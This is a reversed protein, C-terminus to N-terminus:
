PIALPLTFSFTSGQGVESEVGVHGGLREVIRQVISLGLGHGEARIEELRTFPTFLQEQEEPTLGHGNDRVWFRATGRESMEGGLEVRPPQGGYKLANSLYNAWVEEVWPAHGIVSPWIKPVVIEAESRRIIHLLGDQADQVIRGMDLPRMEVEVSRLGSLLILEDIIRNMRRANRDIVGLSRQVQDPPLLPFDQSLVAAYGVILGLPSKLGHAVTHAFADLEEARTQLQDTYRQLAEDKVKQETVDLVQAVTSVGITSETILSATIEFIRRAGDKRVVILEYRSLVDEGQQRRRYRDLVISRSEDDLITTFERGILESVSYGLLRCLEENVYIFRRNQDVILIGAHSNEVVTRYLEESRRLAAEVELRESIEAELQGVTAVLDATRQTMVRELGDRTTQLTEVLRANEIAITAQAALATLIAVDEEVFAGQDRKNEVKLVGIKRHRFQLPVALVAYAKHQIIREVADYHRPDSQVDPAIVPKGSLFAEGAISADLPVPIDVLQDIYQNAVRFRLEQKQEDLLLIGAMETDTLEVAVEAIRHLLPTLEITSALERSIELIRNLREPPLLGHSTGDVPALDRALSVHPQSILPEDPSPSQPDLPNTLTPMERKRDTSKKSVNM